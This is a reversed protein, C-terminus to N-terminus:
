NLANKINYVVGGCQVNEMHTGHAVYISCGEKDCVFIQNKLKFYATVGFKNITTLSCVCFFLSEKKNNCHKRIKFDKFPLKISSHSMPINLM